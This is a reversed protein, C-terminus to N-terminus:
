TNGSHLGTLFIMDQYLNEVVRFYSNLWESVKIIRYAANVEVGCIFMSSDALRVTLKKGLVLPLQIKKVLSKSVFSHIEGCCSDVISSVILTTNDCGYM